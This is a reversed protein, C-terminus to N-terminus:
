KERVVELNETKNEATYIVLHSQCKQKTKNNKFNSTKQLGQTEAITVM